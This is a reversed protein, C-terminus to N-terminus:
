ELKKKACVECIPVDYKKSFYKSKNGCFACTNESVIEYYFIIDEIDKQLEITDNVESMSYDRIDWTWYVRLQGYKEKVDLLIFDNVYSGLTKFLQEKIQPVFAKVWGEPLLDFMITKEEFTGRLDAIRDHYKNSMYM